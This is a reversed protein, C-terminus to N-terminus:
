PGPNLVVVLAFELIEVMLMLALRIKEEVATM